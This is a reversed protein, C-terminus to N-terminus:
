RRDLYSTQDTPNLGAWALRAKARKTISALCGSPDLTLAQQGYYTSEIGKDTRGQFVGKAKETEQQQVPRDNSATSGYYHAALWREILELEENTLPEGKATACAAVRTVVVTASSISPTLDSEGDYDGRLIGQVLKATTRAM